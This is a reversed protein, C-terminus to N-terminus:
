VSGEMFSQVEDREQRLKKLEKEHEKITKLKNNIARDLEIIRMQLVRKVSEPVFFDPKPEDDKHAVYDQYKKPIQIQEIGHRLLIGVVEQESIENMISLTEIQEQPNKAERFDKAIDAETM